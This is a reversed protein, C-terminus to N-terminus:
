HVVPLETPRYHRIYYEQLGHRLRQYYFVKYKVPFKIKSLLPSILNETEEVLANRSALKELRQLTLKLFAHQARVADIKVPGSRGSIIIYNRYKNSRLLELTEIWLPLNAEALFPPQNEVVVDGVFITKESPIEVWIAGLTPGPHYEILISGDGWHLQIKQNFTIKPHTWRSGVTEPFNEWESGNEYNQGKFITSRIDFAEATKRHALITLDMARNGITRDAHEDLNVLLRHTGRSQTLLTSKWSRADEARLPTDIILTGRPHIIAGLTVGAYTNEYYIGNAISQM